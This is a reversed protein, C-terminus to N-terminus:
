SGYLWTNNSWVRVTGPKWIDGDRKKAVAKVWAEGQRVRLVGTISGSYSQTATGNSNTALVTFSYDSASTVTGSLTGTSSNISIGGPLSGASISYVGNYASMNSVAIPNNYSQGAIFPALSLVPNPWAPLVSTSVAWKAWFKITATIAYSSGIGGAYNTLAEEKYWGVFSFGTKVGPDGLIISTGSAISGSGSPTISGGNSGYSYEYYTTSGGPDVYTWGAYLTTTNNTPTYPDSVQTGGKNPATYWGAFSYNTKTGASPLSISSGSRTFTSSGNQPDFTVTYSTPPPTGTKTVYIDVGVSTNNPIYTATGSGDAFATMSLYYTTGGDNTLWRYAKSTDDWGSLSLTGNNVIVESNTNLTRQVSVSSVVGNNAKINSAITWQSFNKNTSALTNKFSLSAAGTEDNVTGTWSLKLSFGNSDDQGWTPNPLNPFDSLNPDYTIIAM